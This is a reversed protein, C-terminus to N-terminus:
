PLLVGNITHIVGNTGQIDVNTVTVTGGNADTITVGGTTSITIDEGNVTAVDGAPVQNSRINGSVVHYLLVDSVGDTGIAGVLAALDPLGLTQLLAGFAADNPAFLTFPGAAPDDTLDDLNGDAVGLAAVLATYNPNVELLQYISLPLIVRDIIHIVGNSAEVDVTTVAARNNIRVGSQTNIFLSLNQDAARTGLTAVYGTSVNASMVKAGLVHYLLVNALGETGLAQEVADLDPLGLETLLAAFAANTPAFVTLNANPDNVAAVLNTRTLADVLISFNPDNSAIEAITKLEPTPAPDDDKKCGVAMTLGAVLLLKSMNTLLKKM